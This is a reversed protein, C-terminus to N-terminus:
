ADQASIIRSKPHTRFGIVSMKDSSSLVGTFVSASVPTVCGCVVFVLPRRPSLAALCVGERSGASPACGQESEQGGSGHSVAFSLPALM